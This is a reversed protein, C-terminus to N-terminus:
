LGPEKEQRLSKSAQRAAISPNLDPYQRAAASHLDAAQYHACASDLSTAKSAVARHYDAAREHKDANWDDDDWGFDDDDDRLSATPDQASGGDARMPSVEFTPGGITRAYAAGRLELMLDESYGLKKCRVIDEASLPSYEAFRSRADAIRQRKKDAELKEFAAIQARVATQDSIGPRTAVYDAARAAVSTGVPYAPAFVPSVDLLAARKITRILLGSADPASFDDGGDGDVSFAFSMSDILGSQIAARTSVAIPDNPDISCRFDLGDPGDQLTLSGNKTSGLLFGDQHERLCKVVRGSAISRSFCGPQLKEKFGGLDGSLTNYSLARGAISMDGSQSARLAIGRFTRVETKVTM